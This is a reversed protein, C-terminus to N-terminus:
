SLMIWQITRTKQRINERCSKDSKRKKQYKYELLLLTNYFKIQFIDGDINRGVTIRM